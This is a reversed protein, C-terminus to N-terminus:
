TRRTDISNKLVETEIQDKPYNNIIFYIALLEEDVHELDKYWRMADGATETTMYGRQIEGYGKSVMLYYFAKKAYDESPSTGMKEDYRLTNEIHKGSLHILHHLVLRRGYRELISHDSLNLPYLRFVGDVPVLVLFRPFIRKYKEDLFDYKSPLALPYCGDALTVAENGDIYSITNAPIVEEHYGAREEGSSFGSNYGCVAFATILFFAIAATYRDLQYPEFSQM